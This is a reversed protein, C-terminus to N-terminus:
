SSRRHARVGDAARASRREPVREEVEAELWQGVAEQRALLELVLLLPSERQMGAHAGVAQQDLDVLRNRPLLDERVVGVEGGVRLGPEVVRGPKDPNRALPEAEVRARQHELDRAVVPVEQPVENRGTHRHEPHFRGGVDRLHRHTGTNRGLHPEEPAGEGLLQGCAAHGGIQDHRVVHKRM